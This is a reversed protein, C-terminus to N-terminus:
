ALCLWSTQLLRTVRGFLMQTQGQWPMRAFKDITAILLDPLLRYIEEDVVVIPLGEDPSRFRSFDCSRRPCRRLYQFTRGRGPM